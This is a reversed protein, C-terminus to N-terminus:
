PVEQKQNNFLRKLSLLTEKLCKRHLAWNFCMRDRQIGSTLHTLAESQTQLRKLYPAMQHDDKGYKDIHVTEINWFHM